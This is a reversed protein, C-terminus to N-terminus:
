PSISSANAAQASLTALAYAEARRRPDQQIRMRCLAIAKQATSTQGSSPELELFRDWVAASRRLARAPHAAAGLSIRRRHLGVAGARRATNPSHRSRDPREDRGGPRPQVLGRGFAPDGGVAIQWAVKAETSRGQAQFVNGLNFPLVPDVTDARM